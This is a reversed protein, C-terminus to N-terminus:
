LGVCSSRDQKQRNIVLSHAIEVLVEQTKKMDTWHVLKEVLPYLFPYSEIYYLLLIHDFLSM